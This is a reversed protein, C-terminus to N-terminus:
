KLHVRCAGDECAEATKGQIRYRRRAIQKYGWRWLPMTFPIHMLPALAYLRPLKTTLYRFAAAGAYRNGRQDVLYMEEMLQDYSLDPFRRAVEPDHLSLFALRKGGRDWKALNQVQGTCFKCHGDFIVIDAAPNEAPTPLHIGESKVATAM